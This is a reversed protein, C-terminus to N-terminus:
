KESQMMEEGRSVSLEDDDTIPNLYSEDQTSADSPAGLIYSKHIHANAYYQQDGDTVMLPDSISFNSTADAPIEKTTIGLVLVAHLHDDHNQRWGAGWLASGATDQWQGEGYKEWGLETPSQLSVIGDRPSLGPGDTCM